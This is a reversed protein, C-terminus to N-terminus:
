SSASSVDAWTASRPSRFTWSLSTVWSDRGSSSKPASAESDTCASSSSRPMSSTVSRTGSSARSSWSTVAGPGGTSASRTTLRGRIASRRDRAQWVVAVPEDRDVGMGADLREVADKRRTVGRGARDLLATDCGLLGIGGGLRDCRLQAGLELRLREPRDQASQEEGTRRRAVQAGLDGAAAAVFPRNRLAREPPRGALDGPAVESRIERGLQVRELGWAPADVDLHRQVRTPNAPAGDDGALRIAPGSDQRQPSRRRAAAGRGAHRADLGDGRARGAASEVSCSAASWRFASACASCASGRLAPLRTSAAATTTSGSGCSM